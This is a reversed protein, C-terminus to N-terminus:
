GVAVPGGLLPAVRQGHGPILAGVGRHAARTDGLDEDLARPPRPRHRAAVSGMFQVAWTRGSPTSMQAGVWNWVPACPSPAAMPWTGGSFTWTCVVWRPPPNPRRNSISKM